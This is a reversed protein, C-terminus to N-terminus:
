QGLLRREKQKFLNFAIARKEPSASNDPHLVALITRYDDPSFAAQQRLAVTLSHNEKRLQALQTRAADNAKAIQARVEEGLKQQFEKDLRKKHLAIAKEITVKGKPSFDGDPVLKLQVPKRKASKRTVTEPHRQRYWKMIHTPRAHQCGAFVEAADKGRVAAAANMAATRERRDSWPDGQDLENAAVWAAFANHSPYEERGELLASGYEVVAAVAHKRGKAYEEKAHMARKVLREGAQPFSAVKEEITM